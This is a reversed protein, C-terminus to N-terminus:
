VRDSPYGIENFPTHGDHLGDGDHGLWLLRRLLRRGLRDLLWLRLAKCERGDATGLFPLGPDLLERVVIPGAERVQEVPGKDRVGFLDTEGDLRRSASLVRCM